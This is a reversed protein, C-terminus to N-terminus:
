QLREAGKITKMVKLAEKTKQVEAYSWSDQKVNKNRKIYERMKDITGQGSISVSLIKQADKVKIAVISRTDVQCGDYGGVRALPLYGEPMNRGISWISYGWPVEEVIRFVYNDLTIYEMDACEKKSQVKNQIAMQM